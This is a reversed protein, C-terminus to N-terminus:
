FGYLMLHGLTGLDKQGTAALLVLEKAEEESFFGGIQFDTADLCDLDFGGPYQKKLAADLDIGIVVDINRQGVKNKLTSTLQNKLSSRTQPIM